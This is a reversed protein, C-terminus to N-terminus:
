FGNGPAEAYYPITLYCGSTIEDGIIHNISRIEDLYAETDAYGVTGYEQAIDWLTDGAKVEITTFYKTTEHETQANLVPGNHLMLICTILITLMAVISYLAARPQQFLWQGIIYPLSVHLATQEQRKYGKNFYIQKKYTFIENM